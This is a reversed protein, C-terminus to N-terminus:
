KEKQAYGFVKQLLPSTRASADQRIKQEEVAIQVFLGEMARQTVYEALDPNVNKILPAKNYGNIADKWYSTAGAKDLSAQIIPNFKARLQESTVRNFFATAADPERGLLINSVDALRMQKIASVLIPKAEKAADEAARNISLIVNDCLKNM